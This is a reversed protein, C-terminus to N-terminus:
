TGGLAAKNLIDSHKRETLAYLTKESTNLTLVLNFEEPFLGCDQPHGEMM